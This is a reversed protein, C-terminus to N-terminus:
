SDLKLHKAAERFSLPALKDRYERLFAGVWAPDTWAYARLSWGIAKNIFFERSGLNKLIITKLLATDTAQKFGLQHDIAARRVWFDPDEAWDLMVSKLTEDQSVLYGVLADLSDVSDWWSKQEVLAKIRPLDESTLHRKLTHLYSIAFYQLERQPADWFAQVLEWDIAKQQRAATLFPKQAERMDPSKLGFYEFQNRMYAKMPKANEPNARTALAQQVNEFSITQGEFLQLNTWTLRQSSADKGILLKAVKDFAQPDASTFYETKGKGKSTSLLDHSELVREVQRAVAPAPDIVVVDPGAIRTIQPIVFPYHTCGMVLTDAGQQVMPEVAEKLIALTEPSDLAGIEIQAVLGPCTSEFIEVDQAFREIVSAYLEGSFTSPTALVGVKGSHTQNAAPKVAPEMGVIPLDPFRLRMEKLSAASATNCAIVLLKIKKELLFHIVAEALDQLESKSRSGYPCNIQDGFYVLNEHPLQAQIERLVSLGGVGSDYIGIPESHKAM